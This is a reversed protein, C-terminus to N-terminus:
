SQVGAKALEPDLRGMTWLRFMRIGAMFSWLPYHLTTPRNGEFIHHGIAGLAYPAIFAAVILLPERLLITLALLLLAVVFGIHHMARTSSNAHQRLYHPWFEEFSRIPQEM